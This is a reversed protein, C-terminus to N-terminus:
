QSTGKEIKIMENKMWEYVQTHLEDTSLTKSDIASGIVVSITGPYKLFSNRRWCSGSNHAIPIVPVGADKALMMATKHFKPHEGPPTRTGEPYIIISLGEAIRSKGTNLVKKFASISAQRNIPIAKTMRMGWGFLPINLLSEKAVSCSPPLIGTMIMTEWASQHKIVYVAPANSINDKGIIRYHMGCVFAGIYLILKSWIKSIQMRGKQFPFPLMVVLAVTFILVLIALIIYFLAARLAFIVKMLLEILSKVM